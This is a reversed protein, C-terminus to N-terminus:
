DTLAEEAAARLEEAAMAPRESKFVGGTSSVIGEARTVVVQDDQLRFIVKDGQKLGLSCCVEGGREGIMSYHFRVM